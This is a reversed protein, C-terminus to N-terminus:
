TAGVLGRVPIITDASPVDQFGPAPAPAYSYLPPAHTFSYNLRMQHRYLLEVVEPRMNALFEKINGVDPGEMPREVRDVGAYHILTHLAPSTSPVVLRM